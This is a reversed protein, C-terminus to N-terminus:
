EREGVTKREGELGGNWRGTTMGGAFCPLGTRRGAFFGEKVSWIAVALCLVIDTGVELAVFCVESAALAKRVGVLGRGLM